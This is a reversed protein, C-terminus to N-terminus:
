SLSLSKFNPKSLIKDKNDKRCKARTYLWQPDLLRIPDLTKSKTLTKVARKYEKAKLLYEAQKLYELSLIKRMLKPIDNKKIGKLNFRSFLEQSFLNLRKKLTSKPDVYCHTETQFGGRSKVLRFYEQLKKPTLYDNLIDNHVQISKNVDLNKTSTSQEEHIRYSVLDEPIHRYKGLFSARLWYDFDEAPIRNHKFNGIKEVFPRRLMVSCTNISCCRALIHLFIEGSRSLYIPIKKAKGEENIYDMGTGCFSIEPNNEMVQVQTTLKNPYWKDDSDLFCILEGKSKNIGINRSISRNLNKKNTFVKIKQPNEQQLKKIVDASNDTSADNIIIIEFNKYTQALVSIVCEEIYKERNYCPIIVSVLPESSHTINRSSTNPSQASSLKSPRFIKVRSMDPVTLNVLNSM